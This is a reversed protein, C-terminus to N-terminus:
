DSKELLTDFLNEAKQKFRMFQEEAEKEVINERDIWSEMTKLHAVLDKAELQSFTNKLKHAEEGIESYQKAKLQQEMLKISQQSNEVFSSVFTELMKEDGSAFAKFDDLNYSVNNEDVLQLHNKAFVARVEEEKFPKILLADVQELVAQKQQKVLVNATCLMVFSKCSASKSNRIEKVVEEGSLGPMQLDVFIYDYFNEKAKNAGVLGDFCSTSELGEQKIFPKLLLHNMEDDDIILLKKGKLELKIKSAESIEEAGSVYENKNTIPYTVDFSFTSGEGLISTLQLKSDQLRLISNCISLGLGTGGFKRTISSDEQSFGEFIAELKEPAIGKGTDVVAAHLAINSEKIETKLCLEVSGEDTFKVANSLLNLFVQKLRVPDGKVFISKDLNTTNLVLRVKKQLALHRINEISEHAVQNINFGIEELHLKGAEIKSFDLIDNVLMLLHNSSRQVLQVKKAQQSKLESKALQDTFGIIANLPTRIEHSMNALFDEKAKGLEEARLKASALMKQLKDSVLIDRIVFFILVLSLGGGILVLTTLQRFSSRAKKSALRKQNATEQKEKIRISAMLDRLRGVLLQDKTVLDMEANVTRKDLVSRKLEEEEIVKSVKNLITDASQKSYLTDYAILTETVVKPESEKGFLRQFFNPRDRLSDPITQQVTIPITVVVTDTLLRKQSDKVYQLSTQNAINQVQRFKFNILGDFSKLKEKYLQKLTDAEYKYKKQISLLVLSDIYLKADQAKEFYQEYDKKNLTLAYARSSNELASLKALIKETLTANKTFGDIEGLAKDFNQYSNYSLSISAVLLGVTIFLVTSIKILTGRSESM